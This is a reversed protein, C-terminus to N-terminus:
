AEQHLVLLAEPTSREPRFHEKQAHLRLLRQTLPRRGLLGCAQNELAKWLTRSRRSGLFQRALSTHWRPIPKQDNETILGPGEPSTFSSHGRSYLELPRFTVGVM